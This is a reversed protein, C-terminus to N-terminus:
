RVRKMNQQSFFSDEIPINFKMSSVTVVTKQNNKDAPIIEIKTPIKRGDMEKVDFSLETKVLYGDEDYYESKMQIYEKKSIWKVIKGWVVVADENPLLEIKWCDWGEITESGAITHTFDVVISSEKLIDDNTYDSGMWGDAMMSPPLKIMRSITPMWNWMETSRKLFAQGKEKAPATILTLANDKGKTWNKFELTREWTPRVITMTMHSESSKEGNWKEDAKRVIETANQSYGSQSLIAFFTAAGLLINKTIM